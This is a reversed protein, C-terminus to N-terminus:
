QVEAVASVDTAAEIAAEAAEVEARKDQIAQKIQGITLEDYIGLAANIQRHLPILQLLDMSAKSKIARIKSAKAEELPVPTFTKTQVVEGDVFEVVSSETHFDPCTREDTQVTYWGHQRREEEPLLYFNSVRETSKPLTGQTKVIVGDIVQAYM